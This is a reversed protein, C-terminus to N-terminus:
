KELAGFLSKRAMLPPLALMVLDMNTLLTNMSHLSRHVLTRLRQLCRVLTDLVLTVDLVVSMCVLTLRIEPVM